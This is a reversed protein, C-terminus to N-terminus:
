RQRKVAPRRRPARRIGPESGGLQALRRAGERAILARLGEHVLSTKEPIGTLGRAREILDDDLILTTRMHMFITTKHMDTLCEDKVVGYQLGGPAALTLLLM